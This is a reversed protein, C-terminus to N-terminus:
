FFWCFWVKPNGQCVQNPNILCKHNEYLQDNRLGRTLYPFAKFFYSVWAKKSCYANLNKNISFPQFFDGSLLAWFQLPLPWCSTLWFARTECRKSAKGLCKIFRLLIVSRLKFSQLPYHNGNFGFFISHYNISLINENGIDISTYKTYWLKRKTDCVRKIEFGHFSKSIHWGLTDNKLPFEFHKVACFFKINCFDVM